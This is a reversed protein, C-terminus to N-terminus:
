AVEEVSLQITLFKLVEDTIRTRRELEAVLASNETTYELRLYFGRMYDNVPYALDRTGWSDEVTVKGNNAEIIGKLTDLVEARGEANVEPSFLLLTEYTIM